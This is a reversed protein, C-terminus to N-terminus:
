SVHLFHLCVSDLPGVLQDKRAATRTPYNLSAKLFSKQPRRLQWPRGPGPVGGKRVAQWWDKDQRNKEQRPGSVPRGTVARGPSM